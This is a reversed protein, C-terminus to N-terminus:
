AATDYIYEPELGAYFGPIHYTGEFAVFSGRYGIIDDYVAAEHWVVEWM